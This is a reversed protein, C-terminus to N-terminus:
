FIYLEQFLWFITKSWSHLGILFYPGYVSFKYYMKFFILYNLFWFILLIVTNQLLMGNFQTNFYKKKFCGLYIILINFFIIFFVHLFKIGLIINLIFISPIHHQPDDLKLKLIFDSTHTKNWMNFDFFENKTLNKTEYIPYFFQYNSTHLYFLFSKYEKIFIYLYITIIFILSINYPIKNNYQKYFILLNISYITLITLLYVNVNNINPSRIQLCRIPDWFIQLEHPSIIYLFTFVLFVYFELVWILMFVRTWYYKIMVTYKSYNYISFFYSFINVIFLTMLVLLFIIKFNFNLLLFYIEIILFLIIAFNLITILNKKFNLNNKKLFVNLM